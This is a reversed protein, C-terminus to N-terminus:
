LERDLDSVSGKWWENSTYELPVELTETRDGLQPAAELRALRENTTVNTDEIEAYKGSFDLEQYIRYQKQRKKQVMGDFTGYAQAKTVGAIKKQKQTSDSKFSEIRGWRCIVAYTKNKELVAYNDQCLNVEYFKYHGPETNRLITRQLVKM